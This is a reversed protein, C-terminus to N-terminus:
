PQKGQLLRGESEQSSSRHDWPPQVVNCFNRGTLFSLVLPSRPGSRTAMAPPPLFATLVLPTSVTSTEQLNELGPRGLDLNILVDPVPEEATRAWGPSPRAPPTCQASLLVGVALGLEAVQTSVIGPLGKLM